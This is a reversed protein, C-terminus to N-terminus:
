KKKHECTFADHTWRRFTCNLCTNQANSVREEDVDDKYHECASIDYRAFEMDRNEKKCFVTWGGAPNSKVFVVLKGDTLVPKVKWPVYVPDDDRPYGGDIDKVEDICANEKLRGVIYTEEERFEKAGGKLEGDNGTLRLAVGALAGIVGTGDGGLEKLFVGCKKATDYADTKKLVKNKALYGFEALRREDVLGDTFLICVAPDASPASEKAVYDCVAQTLEDLRDGDVDASFIMSSNHSTYRIDPHVLLQHRTIYGCKGFGGSEVLVRLESAIAGTGKSDIDDTDDIGILIHKLM